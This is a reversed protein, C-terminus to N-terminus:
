NNLTYYRDRNSGHSILIEQDCLKKFIEKVRTASLGTIDRAVKNTIKGNEKLYNIIKDATIPPKDATSDEPRYFVVVFGTKLMQFDVKVGSDKCATIIRRLGTGFSEVDKSYYLIQSIMPNRKISRESGEIFDNPTLGEPFKGPNYIEIRDKYIAVENNQSTRYDRHCFSNVIAERVADLPIEPIEKRQISGDFKARWRINNKIYKEATEVLEFITGSERKIDIFTLRENTVFIAM